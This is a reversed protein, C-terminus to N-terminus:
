DFEHPKVKKLAAQALSMLNRGQESLENRGALDSYLQGVVEYLDPAALLLLVRDRDGPQSNRCTAVWQGHDHINVVGSRLAKVPTLKM